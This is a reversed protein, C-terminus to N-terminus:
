LVDVAMSPYLGLPCVGALGWKELSQPTDWQFNREAGTPYAASYRALAIEEKKERMASTRIIGNRM